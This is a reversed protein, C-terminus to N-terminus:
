AQQDQDVLNWSSAEGGMVLVQRPLMVASAADGEILAALHSPVIKLCDISHTHFYERWLVPDM